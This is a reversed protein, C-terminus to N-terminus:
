LLSGLRVLRLVPDASERSRGLDAEFEAVWDNHEEPDALMQQLRDTTWPQGDPDQPLSHNAIVSRSPSPLYPGPVIALLNKNFLM